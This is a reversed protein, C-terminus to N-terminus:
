ASSSDSAQRKRVRAAVAAVVVLTVLTTPLRNSPLTLAGFVAALSLGARAATRVSHSRAEPGIIRQARLVYTALSLSCITALAQVIIRVATTM